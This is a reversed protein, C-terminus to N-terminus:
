HAADAAAKAAAPDMKKNQMLFLLPLTVVFFLGALRFTDLYSVMLAQKSILADLNRYAATVSDFANVGRSALSQAMANLRDTTLADNPQLNSVLDNRHVASRQAIYTNTIAVGFAGGLQRVMNTFAIGTPLESPKLTSISQNILPANIM